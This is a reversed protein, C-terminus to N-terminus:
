ELWAVPLTELALLASILVGLATLNGFIGASLGCLASVISIIFMAKRIGAKRCLFHVVGLVALVIAGVAALFPGWVAYGVPILSYASFWSVEGGMWNLKVVNNMASLGAAVPLLIALLRMVTGKKM